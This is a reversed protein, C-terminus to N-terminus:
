TVGLLTQDGHFHLMKRIFNVKVYITRFTKYFLTKLTVSIPKKATPVFNFNNM